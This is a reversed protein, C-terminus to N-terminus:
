KKKKLGKGVKMVFGSEFGLVLFFCMLELNIKM